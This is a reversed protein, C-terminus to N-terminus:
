LADDGPAWAFGLADLKAVRAATMGESPESPEGRDLKKKCKQQRSVWNGLRPDEPWGQAVNCDGHAAKYAALRAFQAEWAADHNPDRVKAGEWAFGLATLRAARAATMGKCHEGRDLKRKFMRQRTVWGALRPDEASVSPVSCDGHAAKYAALRALQAEWAVDCPEWEFGLATLQAAREATM